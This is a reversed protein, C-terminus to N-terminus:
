SEITVTVTAWGGPGLDIPVEPLEIDIYSSSDWCFGRVLVNAHTTNVKGIAWSVTMTQNVNSGDAITGTATSGLCLVTYQLDRGYDNAITVTVTASARDWFEPDRPYLDKSNRVGDGDYDRISPNWSYESSTYVYAVSAIVVTTVAISVAVVAYLARESLPMDEVIQM